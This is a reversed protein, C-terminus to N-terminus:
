IFSLVAVKKQWKWAEPKQYHNFLRQYFEKSLGGIVKKNGTDTFGLGGTTLGGLHMDPSVIIVSKGMKKVQVAATIAASTGGYIIVDAKYRQGFVAPFLLLLFALAKLNKM